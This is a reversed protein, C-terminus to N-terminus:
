SAKRFIYDTVTANAEDLVSNDFAKLYAETTTVSAHGLCESIVHLSLNCQKAATAWTHRACYSSVNVFLGTQRALKKLNYNQRRLAKGYTRYLAEGEVGAPLIDLLFPSDPDTASCQSILALMEDSLQIRMPTGTKKRRIILYGNKVDVKRIMALDIFPLGRMRLMLEIYIRAKQLPEALPQKPDTLLARMEAAGLTREHNPSVGTFVDHFLMPIFAVLGSRVARNYVAQLVRLYTSSTNRSCVRVVTLYEEYRKLFDPTLEDLYFTEGIFGKLSNRTSRHLSAAAHKGHQRLEHIVSGMYDYLSIREM